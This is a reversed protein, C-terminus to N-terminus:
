IVDYKVCMVDDFIKLSWKEFRNKTYRSRHHPTSAHYREQTYPLTHREESAAREEAGQTRRHAHGHSAASEEVGSTVASPTRYRERVTDCDVCGGGHPSGNGNHERGTVECDGNLPPLVDNVLEQESRYVKGGNKRRKGGPIQQGGNVATKKAGASIAQIQPM